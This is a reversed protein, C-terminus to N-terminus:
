FPSQISFDDRTEPQWNFPDAQQPLDNEVEEQNAEPDFNDIRRYTLIDDTDAISNHTNQDTDIDEASLWLIDDVGSNDKGQNQVPLLPNNSKNTNAMNAKQTIQINKLSAKTEVPKSFGTTLDRFNEDSFNSDVSTNAFYQDLRSLWIHKANSSNNAYLRYPNETFKPIYLLQDLQDRIIQKATLGQLFDRNSQKDNFQKYPIFLEYKYSLRPLNNDTITSTSTLVLRLYSFSPTMIDEYSLQDPHVAATCSVENEICTTTNEPATATEPLTNDVAPAVPVMSSFVDNMMDSSWNDLAQHGGGFVVAPFLLVPLSILSIRNIPYSM